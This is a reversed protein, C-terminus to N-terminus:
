ALEKPKPRRHLLFNGQPLLAIQETLSQIGHLSQNGHSLVCAYPLLRRSCVKNAMANETRVCGSNHSDKRQQRELEEIRLLARMLLAELEEIRQDKRVADAKLSADSSLVLGWASLRGKQSLSISM